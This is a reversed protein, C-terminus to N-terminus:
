MKEYVELETRLWSNNVRVTGGEGEITEEAPVADRVDNLTKAVRAAHETPSDAKAWQELATLAIVAQHVRMEYRSVPENATASKVGSLVLLLAFLLRKAHWMPSRADPQSLCYNAARTPRNNLPSASLPLM